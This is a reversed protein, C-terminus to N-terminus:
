KKGELQKILEVRNLHRGGLFPTNLWIEAWHAASDLSSLRAGLCLVNSDNHERSLKATEENWVCAARIGPMKNAAISMGIGTGCILIGRNQADKVVSQGVKEAFQPYDVSETSHTGCDIVKLSPAFGKIKAILSQKLEFGAHDSGIFLTKVSV